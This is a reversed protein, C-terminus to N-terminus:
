SPTFNRDRVLTGHVVFLLLLFFDRAHWTGRRTKATLSSCLPTTGSRQPARHGGPNSRTLVSSLPQAGTWARGKLREAEKYFLCWAAAKVDNLNMQENGKYCLRPDSSWLCTHPLGPHFLSPVSAKQATEQSSM